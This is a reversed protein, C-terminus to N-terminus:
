FNTTKQEKTEMKQRLAPVAAIFIESTNGLRISTLLMQWLWRSPITSGCGSSFQHGIDLLVFSSAATCVLVYGGYSCILSKPVLQNIEWGKGSASFDLSV